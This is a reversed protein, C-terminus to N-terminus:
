FPMEETFKVTGQYHFYRYFIAQTELILRNNTNLSSIEDNTYKGYPLSIEITNDTKRYWYDLRLQNEINNLFLIL